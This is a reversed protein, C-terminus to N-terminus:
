SYPHNELIRIHEAFLKHGAKHIAHSHRNLTDVRSFSKGCSQCKHDKRGEHVAEIHKKLKGKQTFLKGCCECKHDEHIIHIHKELNKATSLLKGCSDCRYDKQNIPKLHTKFLSHEQFSKYCNACDFTIEEDKLDHHELYHLLLKDSEYFVIDCGDCIYEEISCQEIGKESSDESM